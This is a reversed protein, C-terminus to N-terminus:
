FQSLVVEEIEDVMSKLFLNSDSNRASCNSRIEGETGTLVNLQGMKIMSLVFNEYFLTQNIAYSTVIERTRTDTYLDQDSTFVGQRNMLDVYYKNDFANPSRIDLVTTNDTDTEPCTLKLNNAFTKDMTSDQSPYLRGTFSSCHSLGITHGGSLAVLDTASLNKAAFFELTTTTNFTPAPLSDLVDQQTAFNLSDRRGLPVEYDPGGSLFVSDRAAIATIDACSVVTGCEKQVSQSLNNIIEFATQRLTLNPIASQESPGSASGDLLVSGDCGQVFCDHFHLRLLGASQGIDDEFVKKLHKRIISELKPCSSNYFTWSLGNLVIAPQSSEVSLLLSSLAFIICALSLTKLAM